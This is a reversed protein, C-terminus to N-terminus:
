PSIFPYAFVAVAAFALVFSSAIWLPRASKSFLSVLVGLGLVAGAIPILM